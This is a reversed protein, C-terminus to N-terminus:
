ILKKDDGNIILAQANNVPLPKFGAQKLNHIIGQMIGEYKDLDAHPVVVTDTFHLGDLYLEPAMAPDDATDFYKLTPGAMIAGASGGGYVKGKKVLRSIVEDAGTDALLWRLYYTNGGSLWIVDYDSLKAALEKPNDFDKLNVHIIQFQTRFIAERERYLWTLSEEPYPDAANEILALKINRAPKGVLDALAQQNATSVNLSALFLKM